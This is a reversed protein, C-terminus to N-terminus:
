GSWCSAVTNRTRSQPTWCLPVYVVGGGAVSELSAWLPSGSYVFVVTALHLGRHHHQTQGIAPRFVRQPLLETVNLTAAFQKAAVATESNYCSSQGHILFYVSAKFNSFFFFSALLLGLNNKSLLLRSWKPTFLYNLHLFMPNVQLGTKILNLVKQKFFFFFGVSVIDSLRMVFVNDCWGFQFLYAWCFRSMAAISPSMEFTGLGDIVLWRTNTVWWGFVTKTYMWNQNHTLVFLRWNHHGESVISMGVFLGSM